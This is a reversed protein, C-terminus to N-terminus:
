VAVLRVSPDLRRLDEPDSTAIPVEHERASLVVAADIVDRTGAL